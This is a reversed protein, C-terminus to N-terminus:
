SKFQACSKVQSETNIQPLSSNYTIALDANCVMDTQFWQQSITQFWQKFAHPDSTSKLGAGLGM